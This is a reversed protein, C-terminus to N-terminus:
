TLIASNNYIRVKSRVWDREKLIERKNYKKKGKAIGLLIKAINKQNFYFLLPVITYSKRNILGILKKIEVKHLLLKRSRRPNYKSSWSKVHAAINLGLIFMENNINDAYSEGISAKSFRLAKVEFGELVIGADIKDEIIYDYYAKNNQAIIQLKNKVPNM